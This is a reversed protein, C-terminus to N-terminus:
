EYGEMIERRLKLTEEKDLFPNDWEDFFRFNYNSELLYANAPDVLFGNFGHLRGLFLHLFKDEGRQQWTYPGADKGIEKKDQGTRLVLDAAADDGSAMFHYGYTFLDGVDKVTGGTIASSGKAYNFATMFLQPPYFTNNEREIRQLLRVTQLKWFNSWSFYGKKYDYDIYDYDPVALNTLYRHTTKDHIGGMEAITMGEDDDPGFYFRFLSYQMWVLLHSMYWAALTQALAAAHKRKLQNKSTTLTEFLAPLIKVSEVMTGFEARGTLWNFRAETVKGLGERERIRVQYRDSVMGPLFKFLFSAAKGLWYRNFFDGENRQGAMGHIKDLYGRQLDMMEKIKTGFVIKGNEDYTISYEEPVGEKTQIRGDVLEVAKDLTTRKGDLKFRFKKNNMFAYAATYNIEHTMFARGAYGVRGKGLDEIISRSGAESQMRLYKDPSADLVDMLQMQISKAKSSYTAAAYQRLTKFGKHHGVALDVAGVFDDYEAIKYLMQVTASAYNTLGSMPNFMFWKKSSWKMAGKIMNDRVKATRRSSWRGQVSKIGKFNEDYIAEIAKERGKLEKQTSSSLVVSAKKILSPENDDANDKQDNFEKIAFDLSKAFSDMEAFVKYEQIGHQYRQLSYLIDTTQEVDLIDYVGAIPKDLSEMGYAVAENESKTGSYRHAEEVDDGAERGLFTEAMRNMKRKAWGKTTRHEGKDKRLKPYTLYLKADEGIGVQNDLHWDRLYLSLDFLDRDKEFQEKYKADIFRNSIAGNDVPNGNEDLGKYDKPLWRGRNDINALVLEETGDEKKVVKDRPIPTNNYEEKIIRTHYNINPIRYRGKSDQLLGVTNGDEDELAYTKYFSDKTPSMFRWANSSKFVKVPGYISKTDGTLEDEEEGIQEYTDTLYHNREFWTSFESEVELMRDLYYANAELLLLQIEDYTISHDVYIDEGTVEKIFSIYMERFDEDIDFADQFRDIYYQTYIPQSLAKLENDIQQLYEMDEKTIGLEEWGQDLEDKLKFFEVLEQNSLPAGKGREHQYYRFALEKYENYKRPTLGNYTYLEQRIAEILEHTKTLIEQEQESLMNGNYEGADDRTPRVINKIREYAEDLTTIELDGEFDIEFGEVKEKIKQSIHANLDTLPALILQRQELLTNIEEWYIDKVAVQTNAALWEDYRKQYLFDNGNTEQTIREIAFAHAQNFNRVDVDSMSSEFLDARNRHYEQLREAIALADGEKKIGNEYLSRLQVLKRFLRAREEALKQDTQVDVDNGLRNIEDYIEDVEIRAKRGILDKYLLAENEYYEAIKDQHMYDKFFFFKEEQVARWKEENIKNPNTEYADKAISEAKNIRAIEAEHNVFNSTFRWEQSEEFENTNPNWKVVTHQTGLARGLGSGMFNKRLRGRVGGEWGAARLKKNLTNNKLLATQRANSMGNIRDMERQVYTFFGGVVKDQNYNYSEWFRNMMKGIAADEFGGIIMERLDKKSIKFGTLKMKRLKDLEKEEVEPLKGYKSRELDEELEQLRDAQEPTLGNLEAYARYYEMTNGSEKLYAIEEEMIQIADVTKNNIHEHLLDVVITVRRENVKDMLDKNRNRIKRLEETFETDIVNYFDPSRDLAKDLFKGYDELYKSIVYIKNLVDNKTYDLRELENVVDTMTDLVADIKSVQNIFENLRRIVRTEIESESLTTEEKLTILGDELVTDGSRLKEAGKLTRLVKNMTQLVSKKDTRLLIDELYGAYAVDNEIDRIQKSIINAMMNVLEQSKDFAKKNIETTKAVYQKQLYVFDDQSLFEKDFQIEATNLMDVFESLTTSPKLDKLNIKKGFISRLMQKIHYFLKGLLSKSDYAEEANTRELYQVLVEEKFEQGAPDYFDRYEEQIQEVFASPVQESLAAFAEPNYKALAKVIPHAFEHFVTDQTFMGEVLYVKGRKYIGPTAISTLGTIEQAEEYSIIEYPIGLRESFNEAVKLAETTNKEKLYRDYFTVFADETADTLRAKGLVINKDKFVADINFAKEELSELVEQATRVRNQTIYDRYAEKEGVIDVLQQFKKKETNNIFCISM